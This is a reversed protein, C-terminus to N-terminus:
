RPLTGVAEAVANCHQRAPQWLRQLQGSCAILLCAVAFVDALLVSGSQLWHWLSRAHAFLLLAAAAALLGYRAQQSLPEQVTAAQEQERHQAYIQQQQRPTASPTTYTSSAPPAGPSAECTKAATPPSGAPAAM